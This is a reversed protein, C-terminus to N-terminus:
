SRCVITSRRNCRCNPARTGRRWAGGAAPSRRFAPRHRAGPWGPRAPRRRRRASRLRRCSAVELAAQDLLRQLLAALFEFGRRRGGVTRAVPAAGVLAAVSRRPIVPALHRALDAGRHNQERRDIELVALAHAQQAAVHRAGRHEVVTRGRLGLGEGIGAAFPQVQDIEVARDLAMRDVALGDDLDQLRDVHRGLQAAADAGDLVDRAPEFRADLPHDQAGHRDLLGAQDLGGALLPRALDGDADIRALAHHRDVAPGLLARHAREVERQAELVGADRGDDVGVDVAVAGHAADIDVGRDREGLMEGRRHDSRAAHAREVIQALEPGGLFVADHAGDDAAREVVAPDVTGSAM